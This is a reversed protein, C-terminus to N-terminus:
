SGEVFLIAGDIEREETGGEPKNILRGMFVMTSSGGGDLNYADVCGLGEMFASLEELTISKSYDSRGDVVVFYYHYPEIMGIATRPHPSRIHSYMFNDIAKGDNLLNPGFNFVHEVGKKLFYEASINRGPFTKLSGDKYIALHDAAVIERYVEGYRIIVGYDVAACSDSNVAFIADKEDAMETTTQYGNHFKGNAFVPMFNDMSAFYVEAVYIVSENKEVINIEISLDKSHYSMDDSIIEGDTFMDDRVGPHIIPEPSIYPIQTTDAQLQEPEDSKTLIGFYDTPVLTNIPSAPTPSVALAQNAFIDSNELFPIDFFTIAIYTGVFFLVLVFVSMVFRLRKQKKRKKVSRKEMLPSLVSNM